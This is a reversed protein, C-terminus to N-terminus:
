ALPPARWPGPRPWRLPSPYGALAEEPKPHGHFFVIRAEPPCAARRWYNAPWAPMCGHKFSVCWGAPWEQMLGAARLRESLYAQENRYAPIIRDPDARFADLFEPHAGVRFRYASSNGIGDRALRADHAILFEGELAFLEDIPRLVVLDLDLFLATGQLDYLPSAFTALKRWGGDRGPREAHVFPIPFCEVAPDIGAPDDTLCVFRFPGALSRVVAAHLRNVDAAAYKRGWKICLVIRGTRHGPGSPEAM